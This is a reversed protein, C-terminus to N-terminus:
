AILRRRVRNVPILVRLSSNLRPDDADSDNTLISAGGFSATAARAPSPAVLNTLAGRAGGRHCKLRYHACLKPFRWHGFANFRRFAELAVAATKFHGIVADNETEQDIETRCEYIVRVAMEFNKYGKKAATESQAKEIGEAAERLKQDVFQHSARTMMVM